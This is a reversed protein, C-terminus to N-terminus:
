QYGLRFEKKLSEDRLLLRAVDARMETEGVRLTVFPRRSQLAQTLIQGNEPSLTQFGADAWYGWLPPKGTQQPARLIARPRRTSLDTQTLAALDIQYPKGRIELILYRRKETFAQEIQAASLSDYPTFGRGNHWFWQAGPTSSYTNVLQVLSQKCKQQLAPSMERRPIVFAGTQYQISTRFLTELEHILQSTQLEKAKAENCFVLCAGEQEM